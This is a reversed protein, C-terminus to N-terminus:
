RSWRWDHEPQRKKKVGTVGPIDLPYPEEQTLAKPKNGLKAGIDDWMATDSLDIDVGSAVGRMEAAMEIADVEVDPSDFLGSVDLMNSTDLAGSTRAKTSASEIQSVINDAQAQVLAKKRQLKPLNEVKTKISRLREGLVIQTAKDNPDSQEAQKKLKALEIALSTPNMQNITTDTTDIISLLGLWSNIMEDLRLLQDASIADPRAKQLEKLEEVTQCLRKFTNQDDTARYRDVMDKWKVPTSFLLEMPNSTVPESIQWLIKLYYWRQREIKSARDGSDLSRQVAAIDPLIWLAGCELALGLGLAPLGFILGAFGVGALYTLNMWNKFLPWTYSQKDM